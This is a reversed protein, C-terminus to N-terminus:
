SDNIYKKIINEILFKWKILITKNIFYSFYELLKYINFPFFEFKSNKCNVILLSTLILDIEFEYISSKSEQFLWNPFLSFDQDFDYQNITSWFMDLSFIM